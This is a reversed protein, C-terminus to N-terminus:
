KDENVDIHCHKTGYRHGEQGVADNWGERSSHSPWGNSMNLLRVGPLRLVPM